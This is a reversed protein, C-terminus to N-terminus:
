WRRALHEAERRVSRDAKAGREVEGLTGRADAQKREFVASHGDGGRALHNAISPSPRSRSRVRMGSRIAPGRTWVRAPIMAVACFPATYAISEPKALFSPERPPSGPSAPADVESPRVMTATTSECRMTASSRRVPAASVRNETVSWDSCPGMTKPLLSEITRIVYPPTSKSIPPSRRGGSQERSALSASEDGFAALDVERGEFVARGGDGVGFAADRERPDSSPDAHNGRLARILM